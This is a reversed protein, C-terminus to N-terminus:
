TKLYMGNITIACRSNDNVNYCSYFPIGKAAEKKIERLSSFFYVRGFVSRAFEKSPFVRM